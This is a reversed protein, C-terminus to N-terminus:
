APAEEKAAEIRRGLEELEEKEFLERATRFIPGEEEKVHHEVNEKLVTMKAQFSEDKPDAREMEAIMNKVVGHEEYAELIEEREDSASRTRERFAPYFIEEEIRAHLRLAAAIRTFLKRRAEAARPGLEEAAAFMEKVEQHDRKLLTLADATRGRSKTRTTPM